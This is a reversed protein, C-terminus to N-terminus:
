SRDIKPKYPEESRLTYAPQKGTKTLDEWKVRLLNLMITWPKLMRYEIFEKDNKVITEVLRQAAVHPNNGLLRL